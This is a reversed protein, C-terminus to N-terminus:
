LKDINFNVPDKVQFQVGAFLVVIGVMCQLVPESLTKAIVMGLKRCFILIEWWFWRRQYVVFAAGYRDGFNVNGVSIKKKNKFVLVMFFIPIGVTYVIIAIVVAPLHAKWTADYCQLALFTMCKIMRLTILCFFLSSFDSANWNTIRKNSWKM